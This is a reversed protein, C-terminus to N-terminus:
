VVLMEVPAVFYLWPVGFIHDIYIYQQLLLLLQIFKIGKKCTNRRHYSQQRITTYQTSIIHLELLMKYTHEKLSFENTYIYVYIVFM